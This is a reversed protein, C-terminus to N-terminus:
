RIGAIISQNVPNLGFVRLLSTLASNFTSHNQLDQNTSISCDFINVGDASVRLQRTCRFVGHTLPTETWQHGISMRRFELRVNGNIESV